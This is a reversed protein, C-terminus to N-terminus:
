GLGPRVRGGTSAEYIREVNAALRPWAFRTAVACSARRMEDARAEDTVVARLKAALGRADGVPFFAAADGAVTRFAPLDSCVVPASAAMAELLVIGFSEGGLGPACYVDARRYAGPLEADSPSGLWVVPVRLSRALVRAPIAEPGEGAVVLTLDLDRLFRMAHIAIDLGKRPELRGAFLVKKGPGWDLPQARAFRGVEVGNPTITYDGPFYHSVLVRAADSVATRCTLRRVARDLLARSAGYGLSRPASAHFTGITPASTNLLALLSVSPILPEHLHVVDPEFERLARRTAAGAGPGFALPAVSGNAPVPLSRGVFTAGGPPAAGPRASRAARPALVETAHGRARLSNALARVHSQVGGYRDWAYPCVLAVRM